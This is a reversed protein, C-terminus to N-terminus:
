GEGAAACAPTVALSGSPFLKRTLGLAGPSIQTVVWGPRPPPRGGIWLLASLHGPTTGIVFDHLSHHSLAALAPVLKTARRTGTQDGVTRGYVDLPGCGLAREIVPLGDTTQRSVAARGSGIPLALAFAISACVAALWASDLRPRRLIVGGVVACGVLLPAMAAFLFRAEFPVLRMEVLVAAPWGILVAVVLPDVVGARRHGRIALLVIGALGAAAAAGGIDTATASVIVGPSTSLTPPSLRMIKVIVNERDSSAFADGALLLDATCWILPAVAAGLLGFALRRRPSGTAQSYAAVGALLWAEPRALGALILCVLRHRGRTAIALMVLAAAAGDILGRQLSQGIVASIGLCGLAVVAGVTGAAKFAVWYLAAAMVGLLVIVVLQFGRDPPLPWAIIGLLMGLPKPTTLAHNYLPREGRLLAQGWALYAWADPSQSPKWSLVRLIM